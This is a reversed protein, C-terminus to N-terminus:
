SNHPEGETLDVVSGPKAQQYLKQLDQTSTGVLTGQSTSPEGVDEQESNQSEEKGLSQFHNSVDGGKGGAWSASNGDHTTKQKKMPRYEREKVGHAEEILSSIGNPGGADDGNGEDEQGDESHGNSPKTFDFLPQPVLSNAPSPIPTSRKLPSRDGRGNSQQPSFSWKPNLLTTPDAQFPKATAPAQPKQRGENDSMTYASRDEIASYKGADRLDLQFTSSSNPHSALSPSLPSILSTTSSQQDVSPISPDSTLNGVGQSSSQELQSQGESESHLTMREPQPEPAFSM